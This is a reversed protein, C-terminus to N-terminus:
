DDDDDDDWDDDDDDDWDDDEFDDDDEWDDWDDDDDSVPPAVPVPPAVVPKEMEVDDSDDWVEVDPLSVPTKWGEGNVLDRIESVIDNLFSENPVVSGRELELTVKRAQGEVEEVFYGADGITTVIQKIVDRVALGEYKSINKLIESGDDNVGSLSTVNGKEDYQVKVEPNVRIYLVGTKTVSTEVAAESRSSEVEPSPTACGALGGIAFILVLRTVVKTFWNQKKM